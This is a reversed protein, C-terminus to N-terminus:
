NRSLSGMSLGGPGSHAAGTKKSANALPLLPPTRRYPTQNFPLIRVFCILNRDREKPLTTFSCGCQSAADAAPCINSKATLLPLLVFLYAFLYVYMMLRNAAARAAAVLNGSCQRDRELRPGLILAIQCPILFKDPASICCKSNSQM